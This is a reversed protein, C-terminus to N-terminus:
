MNGGTINFYLTTWIHGPCITVLKCVTLGPWIQVVKYVRHFWTLAWHGNACDTSAQSETLQSNHFQVRIKHNWSASISVAPIQTYTWIGLHAHLVSLGCLFTYADTCLGAIQGIQCLTEVYGCIYPIELDGRSHPPCNNWPPQPCQSYVCKPQWELNHCGGDHWMTQQGWSALLYHQLCTPVVAYYVLHQYYTKPSFNRPSYCNSYYNHSCTCWIFM